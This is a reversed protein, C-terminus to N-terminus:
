EIYVVYNESLKYLWKLKMPKQVNELIEYESFDQLYDSANYYYAFHYRSWGFPKEFSDYSFIIKKNKEVMVQSLGSAKMAETIIGRSIDDIKLQVVNRSLDQAMIRQPKNLYSLLFRDADVKMTDVTALINKYGVNYKIFDQKLKEMQEKEAIQCATLILLFFFLVKKNNCMSFNNLLM